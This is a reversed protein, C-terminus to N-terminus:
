KGAAAPTEAPPPTPKFDILEIEFILTSAPPIKGKAEDGYALHPPIYLLMKGGKGIKQLGEIWGQITQELPIEIPDGQGTSDFVAGNVLAGTYRVKVTDAAKPSAGEGQKSIEYCLGSPLTLVGPRKKIDAMFAVTDAMGQKKLKELFAAQRKQIFDDMIPGIKPLDYPSDKGAASNAFGKTLADLQEKNLELGALGLRRSMFWGFEEALQVDTFSPAAPAPATTAVPTTASAASAPATAAADPKAPLNLKIEQASAALSVGLALLCASPISPLKMRTLISATLFSRCPKTGYLKKIHWDARRFAVM